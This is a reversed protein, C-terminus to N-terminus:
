IRKYRKDIIWRYGNEDRLWSYLCIPGGVIVLELIAFLCERFFMVASYLEYVNFGYYNQNNVTIKYFDVTGEKKEEYEVNIHTDDSLHLYIEYRPSRGGVQVCNIVTAEYKQINSRNDAIWKDQMNFINIVIVIAIPICIIYLVLLMKNLQSLTPHEWIDVLRKFLAKM